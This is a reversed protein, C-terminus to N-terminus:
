IGLRSASVALLRTCRIATLCNRTYFGSSINKLFSTSAIYTESLIMETSFALGILSTECTTATMMDADALAVQWFRFVFGLLPVLRGWFILRLRIVGFYGHKNTRCCWDKQLCSLGNDVLCFRCLFTHLSSYNKVASTWHDYM